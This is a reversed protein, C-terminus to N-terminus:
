YHHSEPAFDNLQLVCKILFHCKAPIKMGKNRGVEKETAM